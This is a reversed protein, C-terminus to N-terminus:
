IKGKDTTYNVTSELTGSTITDGVQDIDTEHSDISTGDATGNWTDNAAIKAAADGLLSEIEDATIRSTTHLEFRISLSHEDYSVEHNIQGKGLKVVLAPCEEPAFPESDLDRTTDIVTVLSTVQGMCYVINDKINKRVTIVM